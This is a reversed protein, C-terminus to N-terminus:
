NTVDNQTNVLIGKDNILWEDCLPDSDIQGKAGATFGTSGAGVTITDPPTSRDCLGLSGSASGPIRTPTGPAVPPSGGDIAYWYSYSPTETPMFGLQSLTQPLYGTVTLSGDAFIASATTFIAGLNVKAESQRAKAQYTLFSPIALTALIAIISVVLM